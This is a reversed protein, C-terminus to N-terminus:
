GNLLTVDKPKVRRKKGVGESRKLWGGDRTLM